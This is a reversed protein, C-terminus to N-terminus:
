DGSVILKKFGLNVGSSTIRIMYIGGKIALSEISYEIAGAVARFSKIANGQLDYITIEADKALPESFAITLRNVAPNPYLAFDNGKRYSMNEIGVLINSQIESSAQYLEKTISNQVFAIVEIDASNLTKEILWAKESLVYTDGKTWSKKLSIGGADPIFKRFVNYFVTEGNTGTHNKNKKETVAIFLTLNDSNLAERATLIGSVTLIGGSVTSTLSIDFRPNVLSRRTVDNSDINALNYDYNKAYNLKDNGGDIFSYPAKILGYFLIRASADGPNESYFPDTGPFNTHYQINIVDEPMGSAINNVMINADKGSASSSNTFHELLVKRSREGIKIDDFAIGDNNSSTGDSGYSIRFKVDKKNKLEELTHRSEVWYNDKEKSTWGLPDGGPRGKIVSSNFWNIGDDLTGVYHWDKEEKIKYQLAAGDRDQEFRRWLKLSIMPREISTFDFCPSVISYSEKKQNAMDFKTFWANNGSAAANIITRDPKGFSWSNVTDAYYKVWGGNNTEFDQFYSDTALSISPSIFINKTITDSCNAYNTKVILQVKQYGVSTKPYTPKTGALLPGGDFFNWTRSAITSTSFTSDVLELSENLHFCDNKWYFDARPKVGLDISITKTVACNNTTKVTLTVPHLGGTKFLYSPEKKTSSSSGTVDSFEWLWDTILGASSTTNIFRTSDSTANEICYDAPVFSIVPASIITVPIDVSSTCGTKQSTYKYSVMTAGLAKTPDLYGGTVPGTLVGGKLSTELEFPSVNNCIVDNPFLNRIEVQGLFDVNVVTSISYDVGSWKYSLKLTDYGAGASTLSYDAFAEGTTHVISNKTNTFDIITVGDPLLAATVRYTTDRYCVVSPLGALIGQAQRITTTRTSDKFCSNADTISYTIIDNGPGALKPFLKNGSVGNGIFSGGPQLGLVLTVPEGDINYTPNLTFSPDPLPNILVNETLINSNCGNLTKYQYTIIYTQGTIGSSPNLIAILHDKDSLIGGVGDTWTATGGAPSLGEVTINQVPDGFCYATKLNTIRTITGVEEVNLPQQLLYYYGGYYYYLYLIDLGSGVRLKTPDITVAWEPTIGAVYPVSTIEESVIGINGTSLLPNNIYFGFDYFSDKYLYPIAGDPIGEIVIRDPSGNKCYVSEVSGFQTTNTEVTIKKLAQQSCTVSPNVISKFYNLMYVGVGTSSPSFNGNTVGPGSFVGGSPNATLVVESVAVSYKDQPITFRAFPDSTETSGTKIIPSATSKPTVEFTILVDNITDAATLIYEISTASSIPVNNRLWKYTSFGEPKSYTYLYKGLLKQGITRKGQICVQSAVPVGASAVPSTPSSMVPVGTNPILSTSAPTVEFTITKGVDSITPTYSSGTAGSILNTGNTYWKYTSVGQSYGGNDTYVYTGTIPTGEEASAPISVTTATPLPNIQVSFVTPSAATCSTGNTYNVSVTKSGPTSWTVAISNTGSGSTITGGSSVIWDYMTMGSETTYTNGTSSVRQVAPGTIIPAPLANVTIVANGSSISSCTASTKYVASVLSYNFTGVTGTPANVTATTVVDIPTQNVGNISYIITVTGIANQNNTFTIVPSTGNKCVSAAGTIGPVPTPRVTVTTSSISSPCGDAFVRVTSSGSFSPNWTVTGMASGQSISNGSGDVSWTYTTANVASTTYSTSPSGQCITSGSPIPTTPNGIVSVTRSVLASPGNCGSAKVQIVVNGSFGNTWAMVGTSSNLLGAAANNSSWTFGTNNTATTAYTTTPSGTIQCLPETGPSVTITSPTGVSPTVVMTVKKGSFSNPCSAGSQYVASVLNYEYSGPIATQASITATSAPGASINKTLPDGGNITYTVTIASPMNNTFTINTSENQCATSSGSIDALPVARISINQSAPTSTECINKALVSLTKVSPSVASFNLTVNSGKGDDGPALTVGGPLTWEYETAYAIPTISYTEEIDGECLTTSGIIAAPTGISSPYVTVIELTAKTGCSNASTATITVDGAWDSRWAMVGTTSNITGPKGSSSGSPSVSYSVTTGSVATYTEDLPDHCLKTAGSTFVPDGPLPSLPTTSSSTPALASCGTTANTYNVTVTKGTATLWKLTVTHDSSSIGGSTLSYDVDPTGFGSWVYTSMGAQTTYTVDTETCTASTGPQVDFTVTPRAKVTIKAAASISSCSGSTVVARFWTDATLTGISAGSLTSSTESITVPSSFLINPSKEWRQISGLSGGLTLNAPALGTCITQDSSITGGVSAPSVTVNYVTQSLASCGGESYNVSVTQAVATGWTVTVSNDGTGGGSTISGGASVSWTYGSMSGATSYSNGTSGICVASPGTIVPTPRPTVTVVETEALEASCTGMIALVNFTTTSTLTGTPLDLTGANGALATGVPTSGIRLQYTTTGLSGVVSINTGTGTCITTTGNVVLSVDPLPNITVIVPKIQPTTCSAQTGMIYYTGSAAVANPNSLSVSAVADTWYTFVLGADSGATVFSETIDVTAPSCVAAPNTILINCQGAMKGTILSLVLILLYAQKKMKVLKRLNKLAECLKQNIL